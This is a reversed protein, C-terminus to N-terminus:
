FNNAVRTRNQDGGDQREAKDYQGNADPVTIGFMIPM